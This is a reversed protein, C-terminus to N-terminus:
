LFYDDKINVKAYLTGFNEYQDEEAENEVDIDTPQIRLLSQWDTSPPAM